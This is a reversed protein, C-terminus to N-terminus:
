DFFSFAENDNTEDKSKTTREPSKALPSQRKELRAPPRHDNTPTTSLESTSKKRSQNHIPSSMSTPSRNHNRTDNEGETDSSSIRPSLIRRASTTTSPAFENPNVHSEFTTTLPPQSPQSTISTLSASRKAMTTTPGISVRQQKPSKKTQKSGTSRDNQSRNTTSSRTTTTDPSTSHSGLQSDM